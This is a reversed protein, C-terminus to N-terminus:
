RGRITLARDVAELIGAEFHSQDFRRVNARCAGPDINLSTLRVLASDLDEVSQCDFLVGTVGDRVSEKAGGANYAVVPRGAAQAEVATMGFDEMGPLVLAQCRMLHDTVTDAPQFGLFEITPGALDRLRREDRGSGIIKIQHNHRTATEVVLDIRKHPVLRSVVLYWDEAETSSATFRTLDVPPYVVDAAVGIQNRLREAVVLSNALVVDARAFARRDLRRYPAVAHDLLRRRLGRVGTAALYHSDGYLFRAPSHCYVVLAQRDSLSVQHAWASTDAVVVDLDAMHRSLERMALPYVPLALRHHARLGPVLGLHSEVIKDTAIQPLTASPDFLTTLTLADPFMKQLVVLVQEAGGFQTLYDHVLGVRSSGAYPEIWRAGTGVAHTEVARALGECTSNPSPNSATAALKSM